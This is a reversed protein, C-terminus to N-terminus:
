IIIKKVEKASTVLTGTEVSPPLVSVDIDTGYTAIKAMVRRLRRVQGPYKTKKEHCERKNFSLDNLVVKLM